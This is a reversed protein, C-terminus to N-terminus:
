APDSESRVSGSMLVGTTSGPRPPLRVCPVTARWVPFRCVKAACDCLAKGCLFAALGPLRRPQPSARPLTFTSLVDSLVWTTAAACPASTM